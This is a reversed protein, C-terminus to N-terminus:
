PRAHLAERVKDLLQRATFPKPLLSAAAPLQQRRGMMDGTYGSMYLVRADPRVRAFRAAVEPGSMSPLIFDTLLLHIPGPHGVAQELSAAVTEKALVTYGAGALLTEVLKRVAPDDEVLLITETGGPSGGQQNEGAAAAAPRGTSPLYIKFTTGHGPESYVEVHGGHQRVIGYVTSLGLGTGRGPEKTTFFPEFIRARTAADMGSGTDSVTLLVHRGAGAEPHAAAYSADLEADSTELLLIGGEPMADRANVALNVIVQELQGSDVVVRGPAARLRTGLEVDEGLLRGLMAQLGAVVANLDVVAPALTQRRSFALLQGVLAAARQGAQRIEEVARRPGATLLGALVLESYGLIVSLLNNFDHAIGGALQGIAEMKQSQRLQAELRKVATVDTAITCLAYSHGGNEFLPFKVVLHTRREAGRTVEEEYEVAAGMALAEQGRPDALGATDGLVDRALQGLIAERSSGLGAAFRQNVLLFRGELDTAHIESGAGDVIAHLLQQGRRLAAEARAQETVDDVVALLAPRGDFVLPQSAVMVERLDGRKTLHRRRGTRVEGQLVRGVAELMAPVDEPPRIDRLTLGRFEERTYGYRDVAQRNVTLFRLTEAEVVWMPHPAEEFLLRYQEALHRQERLLRAQELANRVAQPLRALRDKLLYDTAGERLCEVAAEDGITGSVVILPLDLGRDRLARLAGLASFGPLRYDALVLDPPPSLAALFQPETAAHEFRADIGARRLERELLEADLPNDELLTIRLRDGAAPVIPPTEAPSMRAEGQAGADAAAGRQRSISTPVLAQRSVGHSPAPLQL